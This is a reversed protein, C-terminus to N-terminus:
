SGGGSFTGSLEVFDLGYKDTYEFSQLGLWAAVTAENRAGTSGSWGTLLVIADVSLLAGLDNRAFRQKQEVTLPEFGTCGKENFGQSRDIEAPSIVQWGRARLLQAARDFAPFNFEAIGSMPGALYCSM